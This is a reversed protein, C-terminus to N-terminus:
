IAIQDNGLQELDTTTSDIEDTASALSTKALELTKEPEWNNSRMAAIRAEANTRTIRCITMFAGFSYLLDQSFNSRPM